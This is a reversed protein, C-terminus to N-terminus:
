NLYRYAEDTAVGFSVVLQGRPLSRLESNGGFNKIM